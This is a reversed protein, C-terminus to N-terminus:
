GLQAGDPFDTSRSLADWAVTEADFAAREAAVLRLADSGLIVHSPPTEAEAITLIAEAAKEPDGLQNGSAAERRTRLPDMLEDYDSITRASRSMSRGAWETRFSGPEVATVHVGFQAV